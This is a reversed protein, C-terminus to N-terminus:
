RLLDRSRENPKEGSFFLQSIRKKKEPNIEKSAHNQRTNRTRGEKQLLVYRQLLHELVQSAVALAEGGGIGLLAEVEEAGVPELLLLYGVWWIRPKEGL